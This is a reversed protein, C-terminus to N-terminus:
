VCRDVVTPEAPAGYAVATQLLTLARKRVADHGAALSVDELSHQSICVRLMEWFEPAERM